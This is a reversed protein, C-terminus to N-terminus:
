PFGGELRTSRSIESEEIATVRIVQEDASAAGDRANIRLGDVLPLVWACVNAHRASKGSGPRQNVPM